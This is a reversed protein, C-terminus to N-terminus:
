CYPLLIQHVFQKCTELTSWHTSSYVLDFRSALCSTQGTNIKPLCRPTTGTFVLQLPLFDDSASSSVCTTIQRKDEIGLVKVDKAGRKKWTHSGGTPVLHMGTQDTNIVLERPINYIKVLYAVRYSMFMGQSEWTELLKCTTTINSQYSWGLENRLFHRTWGLTVKFGGRSSSDSLM